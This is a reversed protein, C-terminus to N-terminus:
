VVTFLVKDVPQGCTNNEKDSFTSLEKSSFMIECLKLKAKLREKKRKGIQGDWHWDLVYHMYNETKNVINKNFNYVFHISLLTKELLTSFSFGFYDFHDLLFYCLATYFWHSSLTLGVLSILACSFVLSRTM